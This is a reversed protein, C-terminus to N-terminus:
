AARQKTTLRALIAAFDRAVADPHLHQVALRAAEGTKFLATQTGVRLTAEVFRTKTASPCRPATNATACTSAPPATTSPSRRWAARWRKSRSTASPKRRPQSVPVPRRQRFAAGTRRRAPHRPFHRGPERSAFGRARPRRRRPDLTATPRQAQLARFAASWRPRSEKGARPPRRQARRHRGRGPGLVRAARCRALRSPIAPHGGRPRATAGAPLGPQQAAAATGADAGPDRRRPQPLPAVLRVGLAVPLRRRLPRRLRRLPHPLRDRGPHRAPAGRAAGVLGAPRRHRHLDCRARQAKWRAILRRGAPLGFRLGPYRPIPAGDVLMLDAQAQTSEEAHETRILAVRHGLSRLGQELAQVTLAVGNVEPPYTETVLEFHQNATWAACSPTAM